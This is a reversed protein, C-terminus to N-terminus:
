MTIETIEFEIRDRSRTYRSFKVGTLELCSYPETTQFEMVNVSAM